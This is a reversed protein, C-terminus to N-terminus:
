ATWPFVGHLRSLIKTAAGESVLRETGHDLLAGIVPALAKEAREAQVGRSEDDSFQADIHSMAATVLADILADPLVTNQRDMERGVAYRLRQARMKAMLDTQSM